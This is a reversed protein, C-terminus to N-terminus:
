FPGTPPRLGGLSSRFLPFDKQLLFMKTNRMGRADAQAIEMAVERLRIVGGAGISLTPVM